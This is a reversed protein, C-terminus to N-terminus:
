NSTVQILKYIAGAIAGSTIVASSVVKLLYTITLKNEIHELRSENAATRAMHNELDDTNRVLTINVEDMRDDLRDIKSDLKNVVKFILDSKDM